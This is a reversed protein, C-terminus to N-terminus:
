QPKPINTKVTDIHTFFEGFQDFTGNQIDRYIMDLQDGIRGYAEVREYKYQNLAQKDLLEQNLAVLEAEEEPSMLVKEGNVNKYMAM